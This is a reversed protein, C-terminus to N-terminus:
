KCPLRGDEGPVNQGDGHSWSCSHALEHVMAKARCPPSLPHQCWGIENKPAQCTQGTWTVYGGVTAGQQQNLQKCKKQTYDGCDVKAGACQALVCERLCDDEIVGAATRCEEVTPLEPCTTTNMPTGTLSNPTACGTVCSAVCLIIALLVSRGPNFISWILVGEQM